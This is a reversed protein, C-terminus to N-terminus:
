RQDCWPAALRTLTLRDPKRSRGVLPIREAHLIVDPLADHDLLDPVRDRVLRVLPHAPDLTVSSPAGQPGAASGQGGTTQGDGTVVLVVCEDGDDRPVGILVAERVGPLTAIRSEFLGPYINTTGRIIMDRSRGVLVIRGFPDLRALDGTCHALASPSGADLDHLYGDMLSPGGVVLEGVDPEALFHGQAGEADVDSRDSSDVADVAGATAEIRVTVGPLPMGVLDGDGAFAIKDQAEVVAVPLIETMGYAALWRTDPLVRLARELLAKTVPAGGVLAVRPGKRPLDGAEIADLLRTVDAPVLYTATASGLPQGFAVIDREPSDHPVSWTAGAILAPMGLLMQDTHVIDGPQLRFVARLLECGALLSGGTHVVAKPTTTTGSTFVVLGQACGDLTPLVGESAGGRALARASRSGRPVGPLWRGSHVHRVPLRAYDPLLLGRSRALRRLPGRSVAYLLSETIAVSPRAAAVRAAFLEPTSGPDVFVLTGGARVVALSLVVGEPRPRVSFLAREGPQLGDGVLGHATAEIRQAFEGFTLEESVRVDAGPRRGWRRIAVTDAAAAGQRGHALVPELLHPAPDPETM